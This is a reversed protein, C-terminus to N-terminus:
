RAIGTRENLDTSIWQAVFDASDLLGNLTSDFLYDGVVFLNPHLTPEPRHRRDIPITFRGGPLASVAGIWRHVKAEVLRDRGGSLWLPASELAADVLADDDWDAMKVAADGAILWGLVGAVMGPHRASEDYLCCGGFQDLMCFSDPFRDRWFPRDFQLTIRLYHAPHNFHDLHRRMANRLLDGRLDLGCLASYPLALVLADFTEQRSTGAHEIQVGIRGDDTREVQTARSRLRFEGRIRNALERPLLENGGVISYLRLYRPNNMLYNHLGYELNTNEPETALDSHILVEILRRAGGDPLQELWPKFPRGVLDHHHVLTHDAIYFERPSIRASSERDFKQLAHEALPGLRQRVDDLNSLVHGDLVVAGGEMRTISLGLEAVLLKLPDDDIHSYDYLEAAGAEYSAIRNDFQRTHVKGGLRDSSELITLHVPRNTYKQIHYATMLGGPGGGVIGLHFEPRLGREAFSM